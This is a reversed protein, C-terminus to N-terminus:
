IHILSLAEAAAETFAGGFGEISQYEFDPHINIMPKEIDNKKEELSEITDVPRYPIEVTETLKLLEGAAANTRYINAKM